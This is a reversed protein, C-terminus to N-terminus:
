HVRVPFTPHPKTLVGCTHFRLPSCKEEHLLELVVSRMTCVLDGVLIAGANVSELYHKSITRAMGPPLSRERIRNILSVHCPESWSHERYSSESTSTVYWLPGMENSGLPM